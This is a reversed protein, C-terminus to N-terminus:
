PCGPYADGCSCISRRRDLLENVTEIASNHENDSRLPRLPYSKILTLYLRRSERSKEKEKGMFDGKQWKFMWFWYSCLSSEEINCPVEAAAQGVTDLSNQVRKPISM